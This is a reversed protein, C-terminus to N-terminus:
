ANCSSADKKQQSDNGDTNTKKRRRGGGKKASKKKRPPESAWDDNGKAANFCFTPAEEKERQRTLYLVALEVSRKAEALARRDSSSMDDTKVDSVGEGDSGIADSSAYPGLIETKKEESVLEFWPGYRPFHDHHPIDQPLDSWLM